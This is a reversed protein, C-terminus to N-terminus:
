GRCLHHSFNAKFGVMFIRCASLPVTTSIIQV